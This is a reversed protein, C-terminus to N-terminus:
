FNLPSKTQYVLKVMDGDENSEKVQKKLTVDCKRALENMLKHRSEEEKIYTRLLQADKYKKDTKPILSLQQNIKDLHTGESKPEIGMASLEAPTHKALLSAYAKSDIKSAM